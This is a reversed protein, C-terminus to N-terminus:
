VLNIGDVAVSEVMVLRKTESYRFGEPRPRVQDLDNTSAATWSLGGPTATPALRLLTFDLGTQEAMM